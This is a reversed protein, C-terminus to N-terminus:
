SAPAPSSQHRTARQQLATAVLWGIVSAIVAIPITEAAASGAMLVALLAGFFSLGLAAAAVAIPAGLLAAIVLIRVYDRPSPATPPGTSTPSPGGTPPQPGASGPDSAPRSM